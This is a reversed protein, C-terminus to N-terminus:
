SSKECSINNFMYLFYLVIRRDSNISTGPASGQSETLGLLENEIEATSSTPPRGSGSRRAYSNTEEYRRICRDVTAQSWKKSKFQRCIERGRWNKEVFCNIITAQDGDSLTM